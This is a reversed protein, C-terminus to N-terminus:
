LNRGLEYVDKLKPSKEAAGKYNMGPLTIIGEDKWKTYGIIQRYNSVSTDFVSENSDHANLLLVASKIRYGKLLYAYFRDIATKMQATLSYWYVPSAIVLLDSEDLAEYIKSMDDKRFCKGDNRFCSECAICPHIDMMAVPFEAVKHGAEEAGRKFESVMIQTNGNKRPSGNLVLINM